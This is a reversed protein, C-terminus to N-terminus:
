WLNIIIQENTERIMMYVTKHEGARPVMTSVYRRKRGYLKCLSLVYFIIQRHHIDHNTVPFFLFLTFSLNHVPPPLTSYLHILYSPLFICCLFHVLNSVHHLWHQFWHDSWQILFRQKAQLLLFQPCAIQAKTSFLSIWSQIQMPKWYIYIHLWLLQHMWGFM